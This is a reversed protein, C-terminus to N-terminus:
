IAADAEGEKAERRVRDRITKIGDADMDIVGSERCVESVISLANGVSSHTMEVLVDVALTIKQDRCWNM